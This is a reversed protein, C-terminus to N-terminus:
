AYMSIGTTALCISSELPEPLLFDLELFKATLRRSNQFCNDLLSAMRRLGPDAQGQRPEHHQVQWGCQLLIRGKATGKESSGHWM